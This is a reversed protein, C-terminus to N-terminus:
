EAKTWDAALRSVAAAADAPSVGRAVAFGMLYTSVPAAPRDVRHAADRAVELVAKVDVDAEIGLETCVAAIWDDM